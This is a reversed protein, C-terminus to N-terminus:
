ERELMSRLEDYRIVGEPRIGVPRDSLGTRLVESRVRVEVESESFIVRWEDKIRDWEDPRARRVAEGFRLVDSGLSQVVSVANRVQDGVTRALERELLRIVRPDLADVAPGNEVLDHEMHIEIVMRLRDDFFEPTLRADARILQFGVWMGPEGGLTVTTIIDQLEGRAWLVGLAEDDSLMGVMRANQFAAAGFISPQSPDRVEPDQSQSRLTGPDAGGGRVIHVLGVLPDEGEAVVAQLFRRVDAFPNLRLRQIEQIGVPVNQEIPFTTALVDSARGVAVAIPTRLRPQRHRTFFDLVSLTGEKALDEGILIVANHAWFLQRSLKDQLNSVAETVTRGRASKNTAAPGQGASGGTAGPPTIQSPVAITATLEIEDPAIWDLAVGQVIALDNVEIRDWCGALALAAGLTLAASLRRLLNM